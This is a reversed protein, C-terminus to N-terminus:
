ILLLASFIKFQLPVVVVNEKAFIGKTAIQVIVQLLLLLAYTGCLYFAAVLVSISIYRKMVISPPEPPCLNTLDQDQFRNRLNAVFLVKCTVSSETVLVFVADALNVLSVKNSRSTRDRVKGRTVTKDTMQEQILIQCM